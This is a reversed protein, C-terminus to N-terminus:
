INLNCAKCFTALVRCLKLTPKALVSAIDNNDYNTKETIIKRLARGKAVTLPCDFLVHNFDQCPSGCPCYPSDVLNKRFLSANLNYHNSRLRIIPTIFSRNINFEAFWPKKQKCRIKRFYYIGKVQARHKLYAEFQNEMKAKRIAHIDTYPVKFHLPYSGEVMARKALLDVAENGPIGHHSPIWLLQLNINQERAKELNSKIRLILHNNRRPSPNQLAELVSRSDSVILVKNVKLDIATLIANHIAWAESTFVSALAPLQYM